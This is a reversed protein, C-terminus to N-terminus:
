MVIYLFEFKAGSVWVCNKDMDDFLKVEDPTSKPLKLPVFEVSGFRHSIEFQEMVNLVFDIEKNKYTYTYKEGMM